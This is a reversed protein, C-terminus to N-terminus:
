LSAVIPEVAARYRALIAERAVHRGQRVVTRGAVMVEDVLSRGGAFIWADLILDGTRGVLSPHRADLTVLDAPAGATLGEPAVGLARSGGVVASDFLGRGTSRGAGGAMVNRARHRLRQANEIGKLEAAADIEINSDSGIGYHGGAALYEAGNFIGDGLSAETLPCLGAVAGSRALGVTEEDTMHTAHILCWRHDIGAERLLWEVPRMGSWALCDEVEKVQEAAHIHLPGGPVLDVLHGLEQPTVARLSHPAIALVGGPLADVARRGGEVVREFLDRDCVFRRQGPVPPLGGFGGHAYFCSLLTLRIGAATSASAIRQSLEAADDYPRGDPSHHLYHFEGARTFGAELMEAFAMAAVAEIADPDLHSLFHYMTERWTWFSDASDGRREALGAMARQFTHSHLNPLGPLAIAVREDAAGAAVGPEITIVLGGDIRLRVNQAWGGPLLAERVHLSRTM